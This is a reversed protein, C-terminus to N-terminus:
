DAPSCAYAYDSLVQQIRDIILSVPKNELVGERVRVYQYPMFQSLLAMPIEVDSLNILLRQYAEQVPASPWYYRARDSLSYKRSFAQAYLSGSYYKQWYEPNDLMAQDLAQQISSPVHGTGSLMAEEIMALGFVAERFAFTLAPGVKLIAFHDRVLQALADRTQYDTSHAEYILGIVQEIFRVLGAARDPQYDFITRDGYEVGPQVVVAMVREWAADLGRRLFAHRTLQITEEVESPPTPTIGLHEHSDQIGGPSPVETGIVYRPRFSAGLSDCTKEAVAALDAAREAITSVPLPGTLADDACPMSADLHIKVYGAEVYSKVLVASKELAKAAPESQWVNPGLHDGGLILRNRPFRAKDALDHVFVVFDAPTMGTYGGFQNVQNCTSEILLPSGLQGAHAFAAELVLPHASCISCIGVSRGQKQGAVVADLFSTSLSQTDM